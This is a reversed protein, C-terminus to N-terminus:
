ETPRKAMVRDIAEALEEPRQSGICLPQGEKFTLLVGRNGSVIYAKGKRGLRIGWGGWDKLPRFTIVEKSTVDEIPVEQFARQFPWFRVFLGDERVQTELGATYILVLVAFILVLPALFLLRIGIGAQQTRGVSSALFGLLGTMGVTLVVMFAWLAAQRFKQVESFLVDIESVM